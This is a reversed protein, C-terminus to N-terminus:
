DSLVYKGKMQGSLIRMDENVKQNTVKAYIQTTKVSTHGLIRSISAISVGGSLLIQTAFTHRAMHFTIRTIGCMVELKRFHPILCDYPLTKFIKGDVRASHYKEIIKLPLKMLPIHCDTKSKQREICIRTKGNDDTQLHEESLRQLDAYALGTFCAFVFIDRTHCLSKSTIPIQMIKELEEPQLHRCVMETQRHIYGFFPNKRLTGQKIARRIIKKLHTMHDSVTNNAMNNVNRLYFDYDEIFSLTLRQLMIDKIKHKDNLYDLLRDYSRRYKIYTENSKDVGVRLRFEENHERYLQMLGTERRGRGELLNKVTEASICGQGYLITHYISDIKERYKEITSNVSLSLRSKGTMRNGAADWLDPDADMKLSFARCDGDITIRGMVPCQGNKKRVSKKLYFIVSYTSRQGKTNNASTKM